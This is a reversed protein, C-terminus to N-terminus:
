LIPIRKLYKYFTNVSFCGGESEGERERERMEISIAPQSVPQQSVRTYVHMCREVVRM